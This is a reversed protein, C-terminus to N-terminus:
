LCFVTFISSLVSIFAYSVVFTISLLDVVDDDVLDRLRGPTAVIIDVGSKCTSVQRQRDSGGYICVDKLGKYRYKKVEAHIQKALERTPTLVLAGPGDRRSFFYKTVLHGLVLCIASVETPRGFPYINADFIGVDKWYRDARNWHCRIWKFCHAVNPKSNAIAARFRAEWNTGFNRSFCSSLTM